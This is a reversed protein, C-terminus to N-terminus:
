QTKIEDYYACVRAIFNDPDNKFAIKSKRIFQSLRKKEDRLVALLSSKNKVSFFVDNVLILRHDNEEFTYTTGDQTVDETLKKARRAYGKVKGDYLLDYFGSVSLGNNNKAEVFVFDHGLISFRGVRNKNLELKFHGYYHDIIVKDNFIDYQIPVNDFQDGDYYITGDSWDDSEFYPHGVSSKGFEIYEFGNYLRSQGQIAKSYTAKSNAIAVPLFTSDAYHSQGLGFFSIFCASSLFIIRVISGPM